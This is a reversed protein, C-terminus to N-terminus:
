RGEATSCLSHECENELRGLAGDMTALLLRLGEDTFNVCGSLNLYQLRGFCHGVEDEVGQKMDRRNVFKFAPDGIRPPSTHSFRYGDPLGHIWSDPFSHQAPDKVVPVM